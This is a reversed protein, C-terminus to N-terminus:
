HLSRLICSCWNWLKPHLHGPCSWVKTSANNGSCVLLNWHTNKFSFKHPFQIQEFAFRSTTFDQMRFRFIIPLKHNIILLESTWLRNHLVFLRIIYLHALKICYGYEWQYNLMSYCWIRAVIIYSTKKLKPVSKQPLCCRCLFLLLPVLPILCFPLHNHKHLRTERSPM